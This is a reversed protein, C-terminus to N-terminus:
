GSLWVYMQLLMLVIGVHMSEDDEFSSVHESNLKQVINNNHLLVVVRSFHVPLEYSCKKLYDSM